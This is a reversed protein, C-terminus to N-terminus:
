GSGKCGAGRCENRLRVAVHQDAGAELLLQVVAHRRYYAAWHLPTWGATARSNVVDVGSRQISLSHIHPVPLSTVDPLGYVICSM